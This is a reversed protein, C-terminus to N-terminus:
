YWGSVMRLNGFDDIVARGHATAQMVDGHVKGLSISVLWSAPRSGYLQFFFCDVKTDM